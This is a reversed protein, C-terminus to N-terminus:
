DFLGVFLCCLRAFYNENTLSAAVAFIFTVKCTGYGVYNKLVDDNDRFFYKKPQVCQKIETVLTGSM